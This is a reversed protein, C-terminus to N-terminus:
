SQMESLIDRSRSRGPTKTAQLDVTVVRSRLSRKLVNPQEVVAEEVSAEEIQAQEEEETVDEDEEITIEPESETEDHFRLEPQELEFRSDEEEEDHSRYPETQRVDRTVPAVDVSEDADTKSHAKPTGQDELLEEEEDEEGGEGLDSDDYEISRKADNLPVEYEVSVDADDEDTEDQDFSTEADDTFSASEPFFVPQRQRPPLLTRNLTATPKRSPSDNDLEEESEAESETTGEVEPAQIPIQQEGRPASAVVPARGPFSLTVVPRGPLRLQAPSDDFRPPTELVISATQCPEPSLPPLATIIPHSIPTPFLDDDPSAPLPTSSDFRAPFPTSAVIPSSPLTADALLSTESADSTLALTDLAVSVDPVPSAPTQYEQRSPPAITAVSEISLDEEEEEHSPSEETGVAESQEKAPSLQTSEVKKVLYPSPPLDGVLRIEEVDVSLSGEDESADLNTVQDQEAAEDESEGKSRQEGEVIRAKGDGVLEEEGKEDEPEEESRELEVIEAGRDGSEEESAQDPKSSQSQQEQSEILYESEMGVEEAVSEQSEVVFARDQEEEGQDEGPGETEIEVQNVQEEEESEVQNEEDIEEEPLPVDKAKEAAERLKQEEAESEAKEQEKKKLSAAELAAVEAAAAKREKEKDQDVREKERRSRAALTAASTPPAPKGAARAASSATSSSIPRSSTAGNTRSSAPPPAAHTRTSTHSTTPKHPRFPANTSSTSPPLPRSSTSTSLAQSRVTTSSTSRSLTSTSSSAPVPAQSPVPESAPPHPVRRARRPEAPPASSSTAGTTATRTAPKFPPASSGTRSTSTTPKFSSQSTTTYSPQTSVPPPARTSSQLTTSSNLEKRHDDNRSAPRSSPNSATRGSDSRATRAPPAMSTTPPRSTSNSLHSTTSPASPVRQTTSTPLPRSAAGVSRSLPATSRASPVPASPAHSTTHSVSSSLASPVRPKKVPPASRSTTTSSSTAAPGAANVNLYRRITPTMPSTFSNTTPLYALFVVFSFIAISVFRAVREPWERKYVEWCKKAEARVKADRDVAATKIIWELEEVRRDLVEKEIPLEGGPGPSLLYATMEAAKERFTASKGSESQWEGVIFRLVDVLKTNKIISIITTASRSIYLKNTRCLLRLLTPLYLPLLPAFQPGLRTSSGMLDLTSGSLRTRETALSRIIGNAFTKDRMGRVYEEALEKKGAGGRVVAQFRKVAKDIKEWTHETEELALATHLSDFEIRLQSASTIPIKDPESPKPM